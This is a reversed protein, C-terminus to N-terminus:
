RYRLHYPEINQHALDVLANAHILLYISVIGYYADAPIEVDGGTGVYAIRHNKIIVTQGELIRESDMPIVNVNVFVVSTNVGAPIEKQSIGPKVWSQHTVPDYIHRAVFAIIVLAVLVGIVIGMWKLAKM